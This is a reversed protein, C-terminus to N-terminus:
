KVEDININDHNFKAIYKMDIDYDNGALIYSLEGIADLFSRSSGHTESLEIEYAVLTARLRHNENTLRDVEANSKSLSDSFSSIVKASNLAIKHHNPLPAKVSPMPTKTSTVPLIQKM